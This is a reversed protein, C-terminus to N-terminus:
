QAVVKYKRDYGSLDIPSVPIDKTTALKMPEHPELENLVLGITPTIGTPLRDRVALVRALGYEVSFKLLKVTDKATGPFTKGWELLENAGTRRVPKAHFVSRPKQELLPLYHELQFATEGRGYCRQHRAIEDGGHYCLVHNGYAKLSVTKGVLHVPVSYQNKDFRILSSDAVRVSLSKSTDFKFAPLPNSCHKDVQYQQGVTQDRGQIQHNRYKLCAINLTENLEELSDVRPVPVLVNRRSWGVLNEVLGKENGSNINCFHMEFAYHASLAMYNDQPKACIGFGEKVAVRANDFIVKRPVRGYHNFAAVHGELFSEQNQRLFAKVFIDASYCLRFCFLQVKIKKGKLYVTAEGWDIQAAEGPDFELPVFAEKAPQKIERVIRRVTSEAGTFKKENVLRKYIQRATHRQKPINEAQDEAFCQHIFTEVEDTIVSSQRDYPQREWPVHDGDCYKKVTNRSICLERAIARQSMKQQVFMHRIQGYLEVDIIM